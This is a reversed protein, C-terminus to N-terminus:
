FLLTLLIEHVVSLILIGIDLSVLDNLARSHQVAFKSCVPVRKYERKKGPLEKLCDEKTKYLVHSIIHANLVVLNSSGSADWVEKNRFRKLQGNCFFMEYIKQDDGFPHRVARLLPFLNSPKGNKM